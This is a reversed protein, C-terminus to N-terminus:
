RLSGLDIAGVGGRQIQRLIIGLQWWVAIAGGVTVTGSLLFAINVPFTFVMLAAGLFLCAGMAMGVYPVWLHSELLVKPDREETQLWARVLGKFTKAFALGSTGGMFIGAFMLFFPGQPADFFMM